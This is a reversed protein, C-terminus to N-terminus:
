LNRISRYPASIVYKHIQYLLKRWFLLMLLVRGVWSTKEFGTHTLSSEHEEGMREFYTFYYVRREDQVFIWFQDVEDRYRPDWAASEKELFRVDFFFLSLVFSFFSTFGQFSSNTIKCSCEWAASSFFTLIKFKTDFRSVLDDLMKQWTWWFIKCFFIKIWKISIAPWVFNSMIYIQPKDKDKFLSHSRTQKKGPFWSHFSRGCFDSAFEPLSPLFLHRVTFKLSDIM